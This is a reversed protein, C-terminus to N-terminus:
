SMPKMPSSTHYAWPQSSVGSSYVTRPRKPDPTDWQGPGAIRPPKGMRGMLSIISAPTHRLRPQSPEAVLSLELRRSEM